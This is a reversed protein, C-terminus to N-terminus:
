LDFSYLDPEKKAIIKNGGNMDNINIDNLSISSGSSRNNQIKEM